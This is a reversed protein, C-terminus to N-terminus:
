ADESKEEKPQETIPFIGVNSVWGIPKAWSELEYLFLIKPMIENLHNINGSEITDFHPDFEELTTRINKDVEKAQDETQYRGSPEYPLKGREVLINFNDFKRHSEVILPTLGCLYRDDYATQLLLPSDTVIVDVHDKVRWMRHYQKSWVYSQNKFTNLRGEYVLDKPFETILECNVGNCKLMGFLLAATTSKGVGPGGFVNISVPGGPRRRNKTPQNQKIIPWTFYNTSEIMRDTMARAQTTM